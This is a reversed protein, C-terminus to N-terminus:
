VFFLVSLSASETHIQGDDIVGSKVGLMTM